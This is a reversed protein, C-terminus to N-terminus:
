DFWFYKWHPHDTTGSAYWGQNPASTDFGPLLWAVHSYSRHEDLPNYVIWERTGFRDLLFRPQEFSLNYGDGQLAYHYKEVGAVGPYYDKNQAQLSLPYRGHHAHYQGIDGIFAEAHAIARNKSYQMMPKALVLQFFLSLVPLTVLYWPTCNFLHSHTSKLKKLKPIQWLLVYVWVVVTLIGFANGVSLAAFLAIILAVFTALVLYTIVFAVKYRPMLLWLLGVLSLPLGVVGFVQAMTSLPVALPDYKGPLFPYIICVILLVTIGAIFIIHRVIGM